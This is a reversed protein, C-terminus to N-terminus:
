DGQRLASMGRALEKVSYLLDFRSRTLYIMSGVASKYRRTWEEDLPELEQDTFERKIGPTAVYKMKDMKGPPLGLAEWVSEGYTKGPIAYFCAEGRVKMDGLHALRTGPVMLDSMKVLMATKM